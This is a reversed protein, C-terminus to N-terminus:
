NIKRFTNCIGCTEVVDRIQRNINPWYIMERARRITGETGFHGLHLKKIIEKRMSKPIIIQDGKFIIGEEVYLYNRMGHFQKVSEDIDSLNGPWETQIYKKLIQLEKDNETELKIKEITKDSISKNEFVNTKEIDREAETCAIIEYKTEEDLYDRSLTDAIYM